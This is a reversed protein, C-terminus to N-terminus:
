ITSCLDANKQKNSLVDAAYPTINHIGYNSELQSQIPLLNESVCWIKDCHPVNRIIDIPRFGRCSFINKAYSTYTKEEKPVGDVVLTTNDNKYHNLLGEAKNLSREHSM